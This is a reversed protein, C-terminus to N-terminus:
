EVGFISWIDYEKGTIPDKCKHKLLKDDVRMIGRKDYLPIKTKGDNCLEDISRKMGSISSFYQPEIYALSGDAFRQIITAHAGGGKWAITTIYIGPEKTYEEYFAAYRKPSMNKYGNMGLWDRYLHPVAQVGDENEWIDFSHGKSIWEQM